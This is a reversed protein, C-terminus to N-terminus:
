GRWRSSYQGRKAPLIRIEDNHDSGATKGSAEPTSTTATNDPSDKVPIFERPSVIAPPAEVAEAASNSIPPPDIVSETEASELPAQMEFPQPVDDIALPARNRHLSALGVNAVLGRLREIRSEASSVQTEVSKEVASHKALDDPRSGSNRFWDAMHPRDQVAEQKHHFLPVNASAPNLDFKPRHPQAMWWPLEAPQPVKEKNELDPEIGAGSPASFQSSTARQESRDSPEDTVPLRENVLGRWKVPWLSSSTRQTRLNDMGVLSQQSAPDAESGAAGNLEFGLAGAIAKQLGNVATHFQAWTTVGPKM